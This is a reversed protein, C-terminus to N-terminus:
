HSVETETSKGILEKAKQIGQYICEQLLMTSVEINEGIESTNSREGKWVKLVMEPSCCVVEAVMASSVHGKIKRSKIKNRSSKDM